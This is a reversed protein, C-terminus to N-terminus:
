QAATSSILSSIFVGHLLLASDCACGAGAARGGERMRGASRGRGPAGRAAGGAGAAGRAGGPDPGAERRDHQGADGPGGAPGPELGRHWPPAGPHRHLAQHTPPPVAPSPHSLVALVASATGGLLKGHAGLCSGRRGAVAGSVLDATSDHVRLATSAPLAAGFEALLGRPDRVARARYARAILGASRARRARSDRGCLKFPPPQPRARARVSPACRTSRVARNVEDVHSECM